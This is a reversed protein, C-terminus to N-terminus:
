RYTWRKFVLKFDDEGQSGSLVDSLYLHDELRRHHGTISDPATTAAELEYLAFTSCDTLRINSAVIEVAEQVTTTVYYSLCHEIGNM